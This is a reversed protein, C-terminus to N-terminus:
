AVVLVRYPDGELIREWRYFQSMIGGQSDNDREDIMCASAGTPGTQQPANISCGDFTRRSGGGSLGQKTSALPYEDCSKGAISPADGCALRRNTDRLGADATYELPAEFTAGPLGSAQARAVHAALSPNRSQSYFVPSPYWPVVCGTYPNGGVANDCRVNDRTYEMVSDTYTPVRFTLKWDTTCSGVASPATATTNYFSEGLRWTQLPSIGQAPFSASVLRCSGSGSAQGEVTAQLADGWGSYAAIEIQYAWTPQSKDMYEYMIVNAQFEGTVTVAGNSAREYTTVTLLRVECAQDRLGYVGQYAFDVCWSPIQAAQVAQIATSTGAKVATASGKPTSDTLCTARAGDASTSCNTASALTSAAAAKAPKPAPRNGETKTTLAIPPASDRDQM